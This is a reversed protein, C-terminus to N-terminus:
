WETQELQRRSAAALFEDQHNGIKELAQDMEETIKEPSRRAVYERLADSFLRSRSRHTRRALREASAFVDNPISVATKMGFTYGATLTKAIPLWQSVWQLTARRRNGDTRCFLPTAGPGIASWGM